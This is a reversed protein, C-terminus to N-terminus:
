RKYIIINKNSSQMIQDMDILPFGYINSTVVDIINGIGYSIYMDLILFGLKYDRKILLNWRKGDSEISLTHYQKQPSVM